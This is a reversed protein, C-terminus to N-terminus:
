TLQAAADAAVDDENLGGPDADNDHHQHDGGPTEIYAIPSPVPSQQSAGASTDPSGPTSDDRNPSTSTDPDAFKSDAFNPITDAEIDQQRLICVGYKAKFYTKKSGTSMRGGTTTWFWLKIDTKPFHLSKHKSDYHVKGDDDVRHNCYACWTQGDIYVSDCDKKMGKVLLNGSYLSSNCDIDTGHETAHRASHNYTPDAHTCRTNDFNASFTLLAGFDPEPESETASTDREEDDRNSETDSPDEDSKKDEDPPPEAPPVRQGQAPPSPMIDHTDHILRLFERMTIWKPGPRTLEDNDLPSVETDGKLVFDSPSLEGISRMHGGAGQEVWLKVFHLMDANASRKNPQKHQQQFSETINFARGKLSSHSQLQFPRIPAEEFSAYKGATDLYDERVVPVGTFACM